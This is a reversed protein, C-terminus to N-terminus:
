IEYIFTYTNTQNLNKLLFEFVKDILDHNRIQSHTQKTDFIEPKNKKMCNKAFNSTINLFDDYSVMQDM